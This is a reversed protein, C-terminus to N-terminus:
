GEEVSLYLINCRKIGRDLFGKVPIKHEDLCRALIKGGMGAGYIWLKGGPSDAKKVMNEIEKERLENIIKSGLYGNRGLVLFKM